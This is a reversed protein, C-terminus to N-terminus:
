GPNNNPDVNNVTKAKQSKTKNTKQRRCTDQTDLTTLLEPSDM